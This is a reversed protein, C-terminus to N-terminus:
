ISVEEQSTQERAEEERDALRAFPKKMLWVSLNGAVGFYLFLWVPILQGFLYPQVFFAIVPFWCGLGIFTSRIMCSLHMFLGNKLLQGLTCEFRSYFVFVMTTVCLATVLAILSVIFTFLAMTFNMKMFMWVTYATYALLALAPLLILWALTARKFSTRLGKFFCRFPTTDESLARCGSFLGCLAAGITFVPLCFILFLINLLMTDAVHELTKMFKSDYSLINKM